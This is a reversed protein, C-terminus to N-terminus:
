GELRRALSDSRRLVEAVPYPSRTRKAPAPGRFGTLFLPASHYAAPHTAAEVAEQESVVDPFLRHCSVVCDLALPVLHHTACMRLASALHRRRQQGGGNALTAQLREYIAKAVIREREVITTMAWHQWREAAALSGELDGCALMVHAPLDRTEIIHTERLGERLAAEPGQTHLALLPAAWAVWHIEPAPFAPRPAESRRSSFETAKVHLRQAEELEGVNLSFYSALSYKDLLAYPRAPGDLEAKLNELAVDLAARHNGCTNTHHMELYWSLVTSNSLHGDRRMYRMGLELLAAHRYPSSETIALSSYCRALLEWSPGEQARRLTARLLHRTGAHGRSPAEIGALTLGAFGESVVDGSARAAIAAANAHKRAKPQDYPLAQQSLMLHLRAGAASKPDIQDLGAVLLENLLANRGRADLVRGMLPLLRVLNHETRREVSWRWAAIADPLAREAARLAEGETRVGTLNERRQMASAVHEAHKDRAALESAADDALRGAAYRRILPHLAYRDGGRRVLSRRELRALDAIAPGCVAELDALTFSEEFVSMASLVAREGAESFVWSHECLKLLSRHREPASAAVATIEDPREELREALQDLSLVRVLGAALGLGLPLGGVLACIRWVATVDKEAKFGPMARRARDEFYRVAACRPTRPDEPSPTLELGELLFLTEDHLALPQTSTTLVILRKTSAMLEELDSGWSALHEMNDLVLLTPREDLHQGLLSVAPEEPPLTFGVSSAMHGLAAEPNRVTEMPVFLAREVTRETVTEHCLELALRSKGVGSLGTVTILRTAQKMLSRLEALERERGFLPSMPKSPLQSLATSTLRAPEAGLDVGLLAAERKLDAVHPSGLVSLAYQLGELRRPEIEVGEKYVRYARESLEMAQQKEGCSIRALAGEILSSCYLGGLYDRTDLIWSELEAGVSMPYSELLHGRYSQLVRRWDGVAAAAVLDRADCGVQAALRGADASLAGPAGSRLQSVAVALNQRPRDRDPWFLKALRGRDAPGEIALYALLLLPKPRRFSTGGLSLGGLTRLLM